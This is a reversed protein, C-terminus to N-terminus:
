LHLVIGAGITRGAAELAALARAMKARVADPEPSGTVLDVAMWRLAGNADREAFLLDLRTDVVEGDASPHVVGYDRFAAEARRARAFLEDGLLAELAAAAARREEAPADLARAHLAVLPAVDAATAEFGLDRAAQHVLRGFRRGGPRADAGPLRRESIPFPAGPDVALDALVVSQFSADARTAELEARWAAHAAEAEAARPHPALYAEHALGFRTEPERPLAAPDWWAVEFGEGRGLHLGPKVNPVSAGDGLDLGHEGFPPAGPCPAPDQERARPPHLARLVPHIWSRRALGELDAAVTPVVLLDRARTAAVYGLRLNEAAAKATAEERHDDVPKPTLGALKFAALRRTPDEYRDAWARAEAASDALIVVPFELGKAKHVTMLRVGPATEENLAGEQAKVQDAEERLREVFSRFSLGEESEHKRALDVVRDVNALIQAGSPRLGLSAHARTGRLLAQVTDAFPRRNRARTLGRLLGLAQDIEGDVETAATEARRRFPHLPGRRARYAFLDADKFAFLPGTLAGYVMMEDDPHEVASLATILTEIEDQGQLVRAGVLVNEIGHAELARQHPTTQLKGWSTTQKFLLCVDAPEIARPRGDEGRVKWGSEGLLWAVFGAVLRPSQERVRPAWTKGWVRDFPRPAPLAVLAPQGPLPDPGGELPVYGPQHTSAPDRLDESFPRAFAENVLAQIPALARHSTRLTVREVGREALAADIAAYLGLDARRFAYISQKPDGVLLLRGPAPRAKLFDAEEPDDAALLLVIEAQLPDTDQFEDVLIHTFRASLARRVEPDDRVLDRTLVLLDHFDVRGSGRALALYRDVVEQLEAQLSAALDQEARADFRQLARYLSAAAAHLDFRRIGEAFPGTGGWAKSGGKPGYRRGLIGLIEALRAEREPADEPGAEAHWEAFDILPALEVRLPDDPAGRALLAAFSTVDAALADAEAAVDIDPRDWAANLERRELLDRTARRLVSIATDDPRSIRNRALFRALGPPPAALKEAFWRPFVRGLLREGDGDVVFEPDIRAEVPRTRLIERCFGHITDITAEELRAIADEVRARVEGEAGSRAEDLAERIRLQLEGAAKETFTIVALGEVRAAGAELLAVVRRVLERTKGTGAAAEVFFSRDLGTVLRRRADADEPLDLPHNM